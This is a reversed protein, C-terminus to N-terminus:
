EDKKNFYYEIEKNSKSEDVIDRALRYSCGRKSNLVSILYTYDIHINESFDKITKNGLLEYKKDTKFIYM